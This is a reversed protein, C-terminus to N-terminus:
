DRVKWFQQIFADRQYDQRLTAFLRREATTILPEVEDLWRRHRESLEAAAAEPEDDGVALAPPVGDDPPGDVPPQGFVAAACLAGLLAFLGALCAQHRPAGAHAGAPPRGCRAAGVDSGPIELAGTFDSM